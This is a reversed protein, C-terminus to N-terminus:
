KVNLAYGKKYVVDISLRDDARIARRLYSIQVNLALSNSYSDDGWCENLLQERSVTVNPSLALIRFIEAQRSTLIVCENGHRLENQSYRFVTDGVRLCDGEDDDEAPQKREFMMNKMFERRIADIRKQIIITKVQYYLCFAIVIVLLISIALQWAMQRIIGSTPIGVCFEVGERLMPNSCYSVKLSKKALGTIAYEPALTRKMGKLRRFNHTKGYGNATLLSDISRRNFPNHLSTAYRDYIVNADRTTMNEAKISMKRGGMLTYTYTCKANDKKKKSRGFDFKIEIKITDTFNKKRKGGLYQNYRAEEDASILKTIVPKMEEMVMSASYQYQMYLWYAQVMIVLVLTTISVGYVIRIRRDM